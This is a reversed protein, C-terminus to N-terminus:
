LREGCPLLSGAGVPMPGRSVVVIAGVAGCVDIVVLGDHTIISDNCASDKETLIALLKLWSSLDVSLSLHTPLFLNCV